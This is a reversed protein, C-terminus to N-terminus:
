IEPAFANKHVLKRWTKVMAAAASVLWFGAVTCAVNPWFHVMEYRRSAWMMLVLNISFPARKVWLPALFNVIQSRFHEHLVCSAASYGNDGKGLVMTLPPSSAGIGPLHNGPERLLIYYKWIVLQWKWGESDYWSGAMGGAFCSSIAIRIIEGIM